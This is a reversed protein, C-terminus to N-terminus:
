QVGPAHDAVTVCIALACRDPQPALRACTKHRGSNCLKSMEIVVATRLGCLNSHSQSSQRSRALFLIAAITHTTLM